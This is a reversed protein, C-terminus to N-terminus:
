GYQKLAVLLQRCIRDMWTVNVDPRLGELFGFHGGHTTMILLTSPNSEFEKVPVATHM